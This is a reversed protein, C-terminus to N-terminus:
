NVLQKEIALGSLIYSFWIFYYIIEAAPCAFVRPDARSQDEM